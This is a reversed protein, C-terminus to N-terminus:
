QSKRLGASLSMSNPPVTWLYRAPFYLSRGSAALAAEAMLNVNSGHLGSDLERLKAGVGIRFLHAPPCLKGFCGAEVEDEGAVVYGKRRLHLLVVRRWIVFGEGGHGPQCTLRGCDECSYDYPPPLERGCYYCFLPTTQEATAYRISISLGGTMNTTM